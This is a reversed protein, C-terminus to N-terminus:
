PLLRLTMSQFDIHVERAQSLVDMGLLGHHLDDGVPKSFIRAPRLSTKLGGVLLGIQPLLTTERENSGAIGTLTQRGKTGDRAILAAFDEAFRSWLETGAQNGTDLIFDLNQGEFSVRVVPSFGDFFLNGATSASPPTSLGIEFTGDSRWGIARFALAVPFGVLGRNGPSLDDAPLQSDPLIVFAVNHLKLHGITLEDVVSTRVSTSNADTDVAQVPTGEVTVGLFHAESESMLSVNLDTDLAWHVTKGHISVPLIIGDKGVEARITTAPYNEIFQNPHRSFSAFMSRVNRVDPRDPNIRLVADFQAVVDRYRGSRAYLYGLMEHAEIADKSDPAREVAKRLYKEANERNNFASAVAGLYLAPVDQENGKIAERLDFWRHQDYLFKLTPKGSATTFSGLMLMVALAKQSTNRKM